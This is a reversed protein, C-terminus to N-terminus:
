YGMGAHMTRGAAALEATAQDIDLDQELIRRVGRMLLRMLEGNALPQQSAIHPIEAAFLADRPEDMAISRAASSRRIPIGYRQGAIFDQVPASLMVRVYKEALCPDRCDKRVCLVDTAQSSVEAGGPIRPLPVTTWDHDMETLRPLLERESFLFASEGRCFADSDGAVDAHQRRLLDRLEAVCRLGVRTQVDDVCIPDAANADFVRGGARLVINLWFFSQSTWNCGMVAPDAAHVARLSDLFQAWTWDQSPVPVGCRALVATNVFMVRPSFIFPVAILRDGVRFPAFPESFFDAGEGYAAMFAPALDLYNEQHAQVSQTTKLELVGQRFVSTFRLGPLEDAVLAALGPLWPMRPGSQYLSLNERLARERWRQQVFTGVRSRVELVGDMVLTELAQQVKLFSIGLQQALDRAGPLQQGALLEERELRSLIADRVIGTKDAGAAVRTESM